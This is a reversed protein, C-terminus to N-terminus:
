SSEAQRKFFDLCFSFNLDLTRLKVLFLVSWSSLSDMLFFFSLKQIWGLSMHFYLWVNKEGCWYFLFYLQLKSVWHLWSFLWEIFALLLLKEPPFLIFVNLIVAYFINISVTIQLHPNFYFRNSLFLIIKWTMKRLPLAGFQSGLWYWDKEMYM